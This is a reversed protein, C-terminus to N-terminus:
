MMAAISSGSSLRVLLMWYRSERNRCRRWSAMGHLVFADTGQAARAAEGQEFHERHDHQDADDARHHHGLDALVHVLALVARALGLQHGQALLDLVVRQVVAARRRLQLIQDALGRVRRVPLARIRLLGFQLVGPAMGEAVLRGAVVAAEVQDEEAAVALGTAVAVVLVHAVPLLDMRRAEGHTGRNGAVCALLAHRRPRPKVRSSISTTIRSIPMAAAATATDTVWPRALARM